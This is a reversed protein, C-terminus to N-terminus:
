AGGLAKDVARHIADRITGALPRLLLGLKLRLAVRGEEVQIRGRVGRGDVAAENGSWKLTVGYKENLKPELGAIRDRATAVGLTHDREVVIESM